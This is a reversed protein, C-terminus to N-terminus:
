FGGARGDSAAVPLAFGAEGLPVTLRIESVDHVLNRPWRFRSLTPPRCLAIRCRPRCITSGSGRGKARRRPTAHIRHAAHRDHAPQHRRTQSGSLFSGSSGAAHALADFRQTLAIVHDGDHHGSHGHEICWDMFHEAYVDYESQCRTVPSSVATEPAIEIPMESRPLPPIVRIEFAHGSCCHATDVADARDAIWRLAAAFRSRIPTFIGGQRM